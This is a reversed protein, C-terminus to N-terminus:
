GDLLRYQGGGGGIGSKKSGLNDRCTNGVSKARFFTPDPTPATQVANGATSLM